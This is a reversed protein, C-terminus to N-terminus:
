ECVRDKKKNLYEQILSRILTTYGINQLTAYKKLGEVMNPSLRVCIKESM